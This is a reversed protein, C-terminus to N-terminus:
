FRYGVSLMYVWPDVDIDVDVPGVATDFSADTSIDIKWIAANLLWRDTLQYDMGVQLALGVSDDVDLNSAGLASEAASSLDEDMVLWYNIGIGAYPQWASNAPMFFYQLSLTPPLHEVSAITTGAPAYASLGNGQLTVDHEFPTSALLEVGIKSSVMYTVTLGLQTDNDVGVGTDDIATGGVNVRSSSEDPNVSAAGGRVIWDGAEYASASMPIAAIIALAPLYNKMFKGKITNQYASMM